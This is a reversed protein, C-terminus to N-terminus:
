PRLKERGEQGLRRRRARRAKLALHLDLRVFGDSLDRGLLRAARDLRHYLSSRHLHLRAATAQVDGALELWTELTELLMPNDGLPALAADGVPEPGLIGRYPGLDSWRAHRGLVPDLAALEAAALAQDRAERGPTSGFPTADSLGIRLGSGTALCGGVVEDVEEVLADDRLLVLVHTTAVSSGVYGPRARLVPTLTGSLAGFESSRLPRVGGDGPLAAVVAALRVTGDVLRPVAAALRHHGDPRGEEFLQRVLRDVAAGPRAPAGPVDLLDAIAGAARRVAALDASTLETDSGLMWLHGVCEGRRRLPVCLRAAMGIDPNAPVPVPGTADGAVHRHEWERIEPAVHRLLITSIRVPDADDRQTSYAILEGDTGDVTLSRGLRAALADLEEQVAM